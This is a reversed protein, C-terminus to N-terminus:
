PEVDSTTPDHLLESETSNSRNVLTLCHQPDPDTEPDPDSRKSLFIQIIKKQMKKLHDLQGQSGYIGTCVYGTNGLFIKSISSFDQLLGM